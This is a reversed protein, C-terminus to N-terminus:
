VIVKQGLEGTSEESVLLDLKIEQIFDMATGEDAQLVFDVKVQKKIEM